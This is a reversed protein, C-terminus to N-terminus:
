AAARLRTCHDAVTMSEFGFRANRGSRRQAGHKARYRKITSVSVGYIEVLMANPRQDTAIRIEQQETTLKSEARGHRLGDVTSRLDAIILLRRAHSAAARYRVEFGHLDGWLESRAPESGHGYNRRPRPEHAFKAVKGDAVMSLQLMWHAFLDDLYECDRCFPRLQCPRRHRHSLAAFAPRQIWARREAEPTHWAEFDEKM